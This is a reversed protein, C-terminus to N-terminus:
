EIIGASLKVIQKIVIVFKGEYTLIFNPVTLQPIIAKTNRRCKVWGHDNEAHMKCIVSHMCRTNVIATYM